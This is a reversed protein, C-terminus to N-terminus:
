VANMSDDYRSSVTRNPSAPPRVAGGTLYIRVYFAYMPATPCERLTCHTASLENPRPPPHYLWLRGISLLARLVYFAVLHYTGCSAGKLKFLALVCSRAPALSTPKGHNTQRRRQLGSRPFRHLFTLQGIEFIAQLNHSPIRSAANLCDRSSPFRYPARTWPGRSGQRAQATGM